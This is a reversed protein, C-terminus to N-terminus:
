LEVELESPMLNGGISFIVRTAIQWVDHRELKPTQYPRQITTIQREPNQM